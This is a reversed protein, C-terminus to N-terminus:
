SNTRATWFCILAIRARELHPWRPACPWCAPSRSMRNNPIMSENLRPSQPGRRSKRYCPLDIRAAQERLWTVFLALPVTQFVTWDQTDAAVQPLEQRALDDDDLM